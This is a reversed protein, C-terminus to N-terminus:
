QRFKNRKFLSLLISGGLFFLIILLSVETPIKYYESILMKIGVYFLIIAVGFKLYIFLDVLGALAFYLARLGLIAFINSSIIIFTDKTIAIIAPISDVAFVIDSSEILLLTLFTTTIFTKGNSKIFFKRGEYNADLKFNKTFFKILWNNEVDLKQEKGFAMKYAAYLLIFAFVYIIPHFLNLLAVGAFIFIIRFVIASLIGWKLVHPQNEPQINMVSFIMLFVFLNDVSLSKEIIYGTLFELAKQQGYELYFYLFLNFLLATFIWVGSWILSAKLTIKGRRHDTVYLDIFLM